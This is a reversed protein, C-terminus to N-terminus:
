SLRQSRVAPSSLGPWSTWGPDEQNIQRWGSIFMLLGRAPPPTDQQGVQGCLMHPRHEGRNGALMVYGPM